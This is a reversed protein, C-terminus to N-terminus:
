NSKNIKQSTVDGWNLDPLTKLISQQAYKSEIEDLALNRDNDFHKLIYM